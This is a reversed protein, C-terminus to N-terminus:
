KGNKPCMQWDNYAKLTTTTLPIDTGLWECVRRYCKGRFLAYTDM